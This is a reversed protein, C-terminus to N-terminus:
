VAVAKGQRLHAAATTTTAFAAPHAALAPCGGAWVLRRSRPPLNAM